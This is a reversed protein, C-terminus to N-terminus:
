AVVKLTKTDIAAVRAGGSSLVLSRGGDLLEFRTSNSLSQATVTAPLDICFARRHAADLAHVFLGGRTTDYLTYAWAGDPSTARRMPMGRMEEDPERKDVIVGPLLRGAALDYARVAYRTADDASLHQILYLTRGDPSLADFSFDGKLSVFSRATLTKTSVIPFVSRSRAGPQSLPEGLVLFSGDRSLGGVSGDFAVFPIGYVGKLAHFRLVRGDSTRITEAVTGTGTAVTVYRLAGGPALLGDWGLQIGPSPGAGSAAGSATVAAALAALAAVLLRHM